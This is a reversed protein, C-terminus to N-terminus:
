RDIDLDDDLELSEARDRQHAGLTELTENVDLPQAPMDEDPLDRQTAHDRVTDLQTLMQPYRTEKFRSPPAEHDVLVAEFPDIGLSRRVGKFHIDSVCRRFVRENVRLVARVREPSAQQDLLYRSWERV